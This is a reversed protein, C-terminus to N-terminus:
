KRDLVWSALKMSEDDNVKNPPMPIPGWVGTSGTRIKTALAATANKDGKYKAAVNKLRGM